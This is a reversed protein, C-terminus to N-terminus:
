TFRRHAQSDQKRPITKVAFFPPGFALSLVHFQALDELRKLRELVINKQEAIEGVVVAPSQQVARAIVATTAAGVQCPNMRKLTRDVDFCADGTILDNGVM